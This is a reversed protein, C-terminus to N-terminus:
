CKSYLIQDFFNVRERTQEAKFELVVVFDNNEWPENGYISVFWKKFTERPSESLFDGGEDIVWGDHKESWYVGEDIAGEDTIEQVREVGESIVAIKYRFENLTMKSADQWDYLEHIAIFSDMSRAKPKDARYELNTNEICFAEQVMLEAGAGGYLSPGYKAIVKTLLRRTQTKRESKILRIGYDDFAISKEM